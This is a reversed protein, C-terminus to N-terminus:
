PWIPGAPVPLPVVRIPLDAPLALHTAGARVLAAPAWVPQLWPLPQPRPPGFMRALCGGLFPLARVKM